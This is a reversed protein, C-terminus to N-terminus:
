PKFNNNLIGFYQNLYLLNSSGFPYILPFTNTNQLGNYSLYIFFQNWNWQVTSYQNIMAPFSNTVQYITTAPSQPNEVANIQEQTLIENKIENFIQTLTPIMFDIFFTHQTQSGSFSNYYTNVCEQIDMNNIGSISMGINPNLLKVNLYAHICEHVIAQAIAINSKTLLFTRDVKIANYPNPMGVSQYMKCQAAINTGNANQINDITFKVDFLPSVGFLNVFLNKFKPSTILINYVENFKVEAPTNGSVSSIDIFAPSKSSKEIDFSLGTQIMRTIAEKIFAMPAADYVSEDISNNELYTFIANKQVAPLQMFFNELLVSNLYTHYFKRKKLIMEHSELGGVPSTAVGSNAGVSGSGGGTNGGGGNNGGYGMPNHPDNSYSCEFYTYYFQALTCQSGVFHNSTYTGVCNSCMKYSICNVRETNTVGNENLITTIEKDDTSFAYSGDATEIVEGVSNYKIIVAVIKNSDDIQVVLNEIVNFDVLDREILMTYTTKNAEEIVKAPTDVITFNFEDELGTRSFSIDTPSNVKLGIKQMSNNFKDIKLLQDIPMEKIKFSSRNLADENTDVECGGM